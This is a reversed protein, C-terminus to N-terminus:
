GHRLIKMTVWSLSGGYTQHRIEQSQTKLVHDTLARYKAELVGYWELGKGQLWPGPTPFRSDQTGTM